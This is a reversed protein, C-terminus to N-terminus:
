ALVQISVFFRTIAMDFEKSLDNGEDGKLRRVNENRMSKGNVDNMNRGGNEIKKSRASETRREGSKNRNRVFVNKNM